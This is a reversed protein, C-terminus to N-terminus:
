GPSAPRWRTAPGPNNSSRCRWRRWRSCAAAPAPSCWRAGARGSAGCTRSASRSAGSAAPAPRRWCAPRWNCNRWRRQVACSWFVEEATFPTFRDMEYRVVRDLGQEAALPLTVQRELLLGPPLRLVTVPARRNGLTARALRLGPEDLGFRGLSAEKHDRRHLLEASADADDWAFVIAQAPGADRPPAAARGRGGMQRVWWSLLENLM